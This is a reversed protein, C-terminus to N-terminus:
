GKLKNKLRKVCVGSILLELIVYVSALELCFSLILPMDISSKALAVPGFTTWGQSLTVTLLAAAVVLYFCGKKKGKGEAIASLGVYLRVSMEIVMWMAIMIWIIAAFIKEDMEIEQVTIHVAELFVPSLGLYLNVKAIGWIGFLIVGVGADVLLSQQKRLMREMCNEM